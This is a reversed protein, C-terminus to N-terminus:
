ARATIRRLGESLALAIAIGVADAVVDLGDPTRPWPLTGQVVETVVGLVVGYIAVSRPRMGAFRWSAAVAFFLGLHLYKDLHPIEFRPAPPPPAWLFALVLATVGLALAIRLTSSVSAISM